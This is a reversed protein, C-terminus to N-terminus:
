REWNWKFNSDKLVGKDYERMPLAKGGSSDYYRWVGQKRGDMTWGGTQKTVENAYRLTWALFLQNAAVSDVAIPDYVENSREILEFIKHHTTSHLVLTDGAFSFRGTDTLIRLGLDGSFHCKALQFRNSDLSLSMQSQPSFLEAYRYGPNSVRANQGHVQICLFLCLFLYQKKM